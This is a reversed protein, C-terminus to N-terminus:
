DLSLHYTEAAPSLIVCLQHNCQTVHDDPHRAVDSSSITTEDQWGNGFHSWSMTFICLQCSGRYCPPDTFICLRPSGRHLLSPWYREDNSLSKLLLWHPHLVINPDNRQKRYFVIVRFTGLHLSKKTEQKWRNQHKQMLQSTNIIDIQSLFLIM